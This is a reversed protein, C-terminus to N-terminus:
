WAMQYEVKAKGDRFVVPVVLESKGGVKRVTPKGAGFKLKMGGDIQYWGGALADIKNGVAARFYLDDVAKPASLSLSRHLHVDKGALIANPFDEIQVDNMTYRFTPRDDKTLRYGGFRYGLSRPTATPWAADPKALVAFAPGAHLSVVNDGNPGEFGEGRGTWHRRADIFSGQWVLALRMENADFALHVKEPYGVAIARTGAGQIFNRYIIAGTTPELVISDQNMGAPVRASPGDLLFQWMAEIQVLASGGLIKPLPSQGGEFASPMRTGPRIVQPTAVYAHFWDRRLRKTMVTMDIGQVGEAKKGAFTHCKICGFAGAGIMHRAQTKVRAIPEDFKVPTVAPLTDVKPLEAVLHGVNADGFGPMRTHMYPRDHGGKDLLTRFYPTQLKAGVGDLPPPLRGEDGMEPMTTLFLKNTEDQPGGVKDRVHCAYCNQRLLTDAVTAAPPKAKLAADLAARQKASLAYDASGAPPKEALCGKDATLKDFAPATKTSAVPKGGEALQHCNACGLSAFLKRGEPVLAPDIEFGDKKKVVPKKALDAETPAVMEGLPRRSLGPGEILVELEAGGGGQFFGVVVKHVGKTLKVRGSRTTPPHIGDNDVVQKDGVYLKSGDDSTLTFTYEGERAVSFVGTFRMAYDNASRAPELGFATGTGTAAPKLKAFDPLKDWAGSYYAYATAGKGQPDAKLGQLLFSAVEKAEKADLLRPMRGSVRTHLPDALFAALSPLTYKAKPDGLPISTPILTGAEGTATRTGHCVVCGVKTYLDRGAAVDKPSIRGHRLTGTSALYHALAAAKKERDPDGALLHPMTTGPKAALPDALFKLLYEGRARGGIDTLIPAQKVPSDADTTHCKACGLEGLLLRGGRAADAKDGTFFREFGAVVPHASVPSGLAALLLLPLALHM